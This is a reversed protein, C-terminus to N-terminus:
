SRRRHPLQVKAHTLPLAGEVAAASAAAGSVPGVGHGSGEQQLLAVLVDRPQAAMLMWWRILSVSPLVQM